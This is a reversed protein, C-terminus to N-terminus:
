LLTLDRGWTPLTRLSALSGSRTAELMAWLRPTRSVAPCGSRSLKLCDRRSWVAQRREFEGGLVRSHGQEGLLRLCHLWLEGDCILIRGRHGLDAMPQVPQREGDLQRRCPDLQERGRRQQRPHRAPELQQRPLALDATAGDSAAPPSRKSSHSARPLLSAATGCATSRRRRGLAPRPSPRRSRNPFPPQRSGTLGWDWIGWIGM